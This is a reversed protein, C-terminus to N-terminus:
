KRIFRLLLFLWFSSILLGSICSLFSPGFYIIFGVWYSPLFFFINAFPVPIFAVVLLGLLSMGTIKAVALGEVRNKAFAIIFLSCVFSANVAFIIAWFLVALSLNSIGFLLVISFTYFWAFVMPLGIRALLYFPGHLPTIDYYREVGQDREDLLLFASIIALLYPILSILFGDVLPYWPELSFFFQKVTLANLFPLGWKVLVGLLLPAPLIFAMMGDSLIQRLGILILSCLQKTKM